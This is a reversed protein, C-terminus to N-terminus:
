GNPDTCGPIHVVGEPSSGLWSYEPNIVLGSMTVELSSHRREHWEQKCASLARDEKDKGWAYSLPMSLYM